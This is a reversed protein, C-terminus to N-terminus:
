RAVKALPCIDSEGPVRSLAMWSWSEPKLEGRSHQFMMKWVHDNLRSEMISAVLGPFLYDRLLKELMELNM